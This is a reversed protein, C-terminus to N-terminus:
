TQHTTCIGISPKPQKEAEKLNALMSILKKKLKATPDTKLLEYAKTDSVITDLKTTYDNKDM